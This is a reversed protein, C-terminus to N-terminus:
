SSYSMPAYAVSWNTSSLSSKIVEYTKEIEEISIYDSGSVGGTASNYWTYNDNATYITPNPATWTQPESHKYTFVRTGTSSGIVPAALPAKTKIIM